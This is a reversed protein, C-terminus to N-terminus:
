SARWTAWSGTGVTAGRTCVARTQAVRARASGERGGLAGPAKGTVVASHFGGCSVQVVSEKFDIFAPVSKCKKRFSSLGLQGHYGAGWTYLATGACLWAPTRVAPAPAHAGQAAGKPGGVASPKIAGSTAARNLKAFSDFMLQRRKFDPAM